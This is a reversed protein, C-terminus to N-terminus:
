VQLHSSSTVSKHTKMSADQAEPGSLYIHASVVKLYKFCFDLSNIVYLVSKRTVKYINCNKLVKVLM